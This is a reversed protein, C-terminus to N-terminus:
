PHIDVDGDGFTKPARVCLSVNIALANFFQITMLGFIYLKNKNTHTVLSYINSRIVM